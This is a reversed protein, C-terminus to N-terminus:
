QELLDPEKIQEVNDTKIKDVNHHTCKSSTFIIPISILSVSSIIKSCIFKNKKM